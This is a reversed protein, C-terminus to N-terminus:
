PSPKLMRLAKTYASQLDGHFKFKGGKVQRELDESYELASAAESNVVRTVAPDRIGKQDFINVEIKGEDEMRRVLRGPWKHTNFQVLLLRGLATPGESRGESREGGEGKTKKQRESGPLDM